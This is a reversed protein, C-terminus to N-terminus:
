FLSNQNSKISQIEDKIFADVLREIRKAKELDISSHYKFFEKQHGRMRRVLDLIKDYKQQTHAASM